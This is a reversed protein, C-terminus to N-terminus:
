IRFRKSPPASCVHNTRGPVARKAILLKRIGNGLKGSSSLGYRCAPCTPSMLLWPELCGKHFRHQCATEVVNDGIKYDFQCVACREAPLKPLVRSTGTGIPMLPVRVKKEAKRRAKKLMECKKAKFHMENKSKINKDSKGAFDTNTSSALVKSPVKMDKGNDSIQQYASDLRLFAQVESGEKMKQSKLSVNDQIKLGKHTLRQMCTPVGSVDQLKLKISHGTDSGDVSILVASKKGRKGKGSADHGLDIDSLKFRCHPCTVRVSLWPQLCGQHFVHRCPTQVVTDGEKYDYQCVACAGRHALDSGDGKLNWTPLSSILMKTLWGPIPQVTPLPTTPASSSTEETSSTCPVCRPQSMVDEVELDKSGSPALSDYDEAFFSKVMEEPNECKKRKTSDTDLSDTEATCKGSSTKAPTSSLPPSDLSGSKTRQVDLISNKDIGLDQLRDGDKLCIGELFISQEHVPIGTTDFVAQKLELVTESGDAWIRDSAEMGRHKGSPFGGEGVNKVFAAM